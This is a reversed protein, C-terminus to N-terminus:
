KGGNEPTMPYIEFDFSADCEEYEDKNFHLIKLMSEKTGGWVTEGENDKIKLIYGDKKGLRDRYYSDILRKEFDNGSKICDNKPQEKLGGTPYIRKMNEKLELVNAWIYLGSIFVIIFLAINITQTVLM